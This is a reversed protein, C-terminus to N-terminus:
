SRFNGLQAVPNPQIIVTRPTFMMLEGRGGPSPYPTLTHPENSRLLEYRTLATRAGNSM